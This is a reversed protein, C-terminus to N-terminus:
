YYWNKWGHAHIVKGNRDDDEIIEHIDKRENLFKNIMANKENEEYYRICDTNQKNNAMGIIYCVWLWPYMYIKNAVMEGSRLVSESM